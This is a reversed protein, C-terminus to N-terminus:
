ELTKSCVICWTKQIIRTQVITVGIDDFFELAIRELDYQNLVVKYHLMRVM